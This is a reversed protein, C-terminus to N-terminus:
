KQGTVSQLTAHFDPHAALYATRENREERELNAVSVGAASLNKGILAPKVGFMEDLMVNGFETNFHASDQWYISADSVAETAYAHYGEFSWLAVPENRGAQQRLMAAIEAFRSWRLARARCRIEWEVWLAHRPYAM